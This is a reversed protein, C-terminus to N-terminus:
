SKVYFFLSTGVATYNINDITFTDAKDSTM